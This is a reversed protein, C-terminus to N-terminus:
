SFKNHVKMYRQRPPLLEFTAQSMATWLMDPGAGVDTPFLASPPASAESTQAPSHKKRVRRRVAVVERSADRSMAIANYRCCWSSYPPTM